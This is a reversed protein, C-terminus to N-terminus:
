RGKLGTAGALSLSCAGSGAPVSESQSGMHLLHSPTGVWGSVPLGSLGM